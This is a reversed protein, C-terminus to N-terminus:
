EVNAPLDFNQAAGSAWDTVTVSFSVSTLGLKVLINYNYGAQFNIASANKSSIVQQVKTYTDHLNADKTIVWYNAILELKNTALTAPIIMPALNENLYQATEKVRFGTVGAETVTSSFSSGDYTIDVDGSQTTWNPNHSTTGDLKLTGTKAGEAKLEFGELIIWTEGEEWTADGDDTLNSTTPSLADVVAQVQVNLKALAHEFTFAVTQDLEQKTVNQTASNKLAWLLDVQQEAKSPVTFSVVPADATDNNTIGTIGQSAAPWASVVAGSSPTVEMYPAYAFFSLKDAHTGAAVTTSNTGNPWYKLPSYYWASVYKTASYDTPVTEPTTYSATNRVQENYMFNPKDTTAWDVDQTYYAFVGIGDKSTTINTNTIDGYTAKTAANPAYLGFVVAKEGANNQIVENKGCGVALVSAAIAAFIFLKKM